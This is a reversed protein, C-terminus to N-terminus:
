RWGFYTFYVYLLMYILGPLCCLCTKIMVSIKKRSIMLVFGGVLMLLSVLIVALSSFIGAAANVMLLLLWKGNVKYGATDPEEETDFLILMALFTMPILLNAAMSKGQWTRALLFAESTYISVRGFLIILEIFLTFYPLMIRRDRLLRLGTEMYTIITLPLLVLPLVTHCVITTHLGTLEGVWTIWMTFVAMAHRMDIPAARGTYPQTVYMTGNQQTILSQVVYYADDGDFIVRTEALFLMVALVALVLIWVIFRDKGDKELPRYIEVMGRLFGRGQARVRRVATYVGLAALIFVVPTYIWMVYTFNEYETFFLIPVTILEFIILMALYGVPFLLGLSRNKEGLLGVFTMGVCAPLVILILICM